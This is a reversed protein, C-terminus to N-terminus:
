QLDFIFSRETGDRLVKIRIQDNKLMDQLLTFGQSPSKLVTGNIETLVDGSKLGLQVLLRRKRGPRLRFGVFQGNEMYPSAFALDELAEPRPKVKARLEQAINGADVRTNTAVAPTASVTSRLNQAQMPRNMAAVERPMSLTELRGSRELVVRDQLIRQLRAGGPVSDGQRYSREEGGVEAIMALGNDGPSYFVGALRLNLRTEPAKEVPASVVPKSTELKGFLHWGAIAAYDIPERALPATALVEESLPQQAYSPQPLLHLTLRALGHALVIILLLTVPTALRALLEPRFLGSKGAISM